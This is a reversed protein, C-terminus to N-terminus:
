TVHLRKKVNRLMQTIPQWGYKYVLFIVLGFAILTMLFQGLATQGLIEM